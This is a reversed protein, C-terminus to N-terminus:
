SKQLSSHCGHLVAGNIVPSPSSAHSGRERGPPTKPPKGGCEQRREQDRPGDQRGQPRCGPGIPNHRDAHHVVVIVRPPSGVASRGLWVLVGIEPSFGQEAVVVATVFPHDAFLEFHEAIGPHIQKEVIGGVAAESPLVTIIGHALDHGLRPRVPHLDRLECEHQVESRHFGGGDCEALKVIVEVADSPKV